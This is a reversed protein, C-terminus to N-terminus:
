EEEAVDLIKTKGYYSATKAADVSRLQEIMSAMRNVDQQIAELAKIFKEDKTDLVELLHCNLKIATLPQGLKHAATGAIQGALLQREQAVIKAQAAHLERNKQQLVLNLGRVRLLAKIRAQLERFNFPKTLYDDAGGEFAEVKDDIQDRATLILVPVLQGQDNNKIWACVEPGSRGPMMVDLVALDPMEKKCREIADEGDVAPIVEFGLDAIAAGVLERADDDDDAVLIRSGGASM